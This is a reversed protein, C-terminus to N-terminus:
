QPTGNKRITMAFHLHAIQLSFLLEKSCCFVFSLSVSETSFRFMNSETGRNTANTGDKGSYESLLASLFLYLDLGINRKIIPRKHCSFTSVSANFESLNPDKSYRGPDLILDKEHSATIESTGFRVLHATINSHSIEIYINEEKTHSGYTVSGDSRRQYGWAHVDFNFRYIGFDLTEEPIYINESRTSISRNLQVPLSCNSDNCRNIRWQMVKSWIDLCGYDIRVNAYFSRRKGIKKPDSIYRTDPILEKTSLM